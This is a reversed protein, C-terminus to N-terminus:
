ASALINKRPTSDTRAAPCQGAAAGRRGSADAISRWCRSAHLRRRAPSRHLCADIRFRSWTQRRDERRRGCPRDRHCWSSRPSSRQAILLPADGVIDEPREDAAPRWQRRVGRRSSPRARADGCLLDNRLHFAPRRRQQVRQRARALGLVPRLLHRARELRVSATSRSWHRKGSPSRISRFQRHSRHARTHEGPRLMQM